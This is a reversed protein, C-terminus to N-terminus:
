HGHHNRRTLEQTCIPFVSFASGTGRIPLLPAFENLIKNTTQSPAPFTHSSPLVRSTGISREIVGHQRSLQFESGVAIVSVTKSAPVRRTSGHLHAPSPTAGDLLHQGYTM